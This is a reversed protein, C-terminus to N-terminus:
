DFWGIEKFLNVGKARLHKKLRIMDRKDKIKASDKFLLTHGSDSVRVELIDSDDSAM